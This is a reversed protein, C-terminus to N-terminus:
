LIPNGTVEQRMDVASTLPTVFVLPSMLHRSPLGFSHGENEM